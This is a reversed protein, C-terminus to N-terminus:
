GLHVLVLGTMFRPIGNPLFSKVPRSAALKTESDFFLQHTLLM